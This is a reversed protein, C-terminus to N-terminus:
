VDLELHPVNIKSELSGADIDHGYDVDYDVDHGYTTIDRSIAVWEPSFKLWLFRWSMIRARYTM